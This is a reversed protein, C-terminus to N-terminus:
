FAMWLQPRALWQMAAQLFVNGGRGGAPQLISQFDTEWSSPIRPSQRKVHWWHSAGQGELISGLQLLSQAGEQDGAWQPVVNTHCCGQVTVHQTDTNSSHELDPDLLIQEPVSFTQSNSRPMRGSGFICCLLHAYSLGPQFEGRNDWIDSQINESVELSGTSETTGTTDSHLSSSRDSALGLWCM